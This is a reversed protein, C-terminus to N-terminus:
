GSIVWVGARALGTALTRAMRLGYPTPRRTGVVAVAPAGEVPLSGEVYLWPPPMPAARVRDPYDAADFRLASVGARELAAREAKVDFAACYAVLSRAQAPSLGAGVLGDAGARLAAGASGFRELLRHHRVPGIWESSANLALDADTPAPSKELSKHGIDGAPSDPVKM